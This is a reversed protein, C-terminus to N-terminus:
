QGFVKKLATFDMPVLKVSGKPREVYQSIVSGDIGLKRAAAIGIPQPPARLNHGLLDGLVFLEEVNGIWRERPKTSDLRYGPVYQGKLLAKILQEELGTAMADLQGQARQVLALYRAAEPLALDFPVSTGAM